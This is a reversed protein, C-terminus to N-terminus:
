NCVKKMCWQWCTFNLAGCVYGPSTPSVSQPPLIPMQHSTNQPYSATDTATHFCHGARRTFRTSCICFPLTGGTTTRFSVSQLSYFIFTTSFLTIDTLNMFYPKSYAQYLHQQHLPCFLKLWTPAWPTSNLVANAFLIYLTFGHLDICFLAELNQNKM